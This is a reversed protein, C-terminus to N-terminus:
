PFGVWSPCGSSKGQGQSQTTFRSRGKTHIKTKMISLREQQRKAGQNCVHEVRAVVLVVQMDSLRLVIHAESVVSSVLDPSQSCSQSHHRRTGFALCVQSFMLALVPSLNEESALLYSPSGKTNKCDPTRPRVTTGLKTLTSQRERGRNKITVQSNSCLKTKKGRKRKGHDRGLTAYSQELM